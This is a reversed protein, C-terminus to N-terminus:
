STETKKMVKKALIERWGEKNEKMGFTAFFWSIKFKLKYSVDTACVDWPFQIFLKQLVTQQKKRFIQLLELAQLSLRTVATNAGMEGCEFFKCM